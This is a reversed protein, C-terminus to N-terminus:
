DRAAGGRSVPPALDGRGGTGKRNASDEPNVGEEGAPHAAIWRASIADFSAQGDGEGPALSRRLDHAAALRATLDSWAVPRLAERPASFRLVSGDEPRPPKGEFM